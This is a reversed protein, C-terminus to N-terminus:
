LSSFNWLYITTIATYSSSYVLFRQFTCKLHTSNTAHSNYWLLIIKKFVMLYHSSGMPYIPSAYSSRVSSIEWFAIHLTLSWSFVQRSASLSLLSVRADMHYSAPLLFYVSASLSHYGFANWFHLHKELLCSSEHRFIINKTRLLHYLHRSLSQLMFFFSFIRSAKWLSYIM